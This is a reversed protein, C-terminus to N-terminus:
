VEPPEGSEDEEFEQAERVEVARAASPDVLAQVRLLANGLGAAQGRGEYNAPREKLRYLWFDLLWLAAGIVAVWLVVGLLSM